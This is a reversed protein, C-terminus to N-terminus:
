QLVEVSYQRRKLASARRLLPRLDRARRACALVPTKTNIYHNLAPDNLVENACDPEILFAATATGARGFEDITKGNPLLLLRHPFGPFVKPLFGADYTILITDPLSM